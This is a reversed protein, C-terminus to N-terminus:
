EDEEVDVLVIGNEDEGWYDISRGCDICNLVSCEMPMDKQVTYKKSLKGNKLVKYNKSSQYLESLCFNNGGCQKCKIGKINKLM